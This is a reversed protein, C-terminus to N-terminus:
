DGGEFKYANVRIKKGSRLMEAALPNVLMFYQQTYQQDNYPFQEAKASKVEFAYIGDQGKVIQMPSGAKTGMIRGAVKADRVNGNPAFRFIEVVAPETQMAAAIEAVNKGKGEYQKLLDSAAKDARVKSTLYEKM